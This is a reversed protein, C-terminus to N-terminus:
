RIGNLAFTTEWKFEEKDVELEKILIKLNEHASGTHSIERTVISFELSIRILDLKELLEEKSM